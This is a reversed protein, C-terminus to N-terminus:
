FHECEQESIQWAILVSLTLAIASLTMTLERASAAREQSLFTAENM